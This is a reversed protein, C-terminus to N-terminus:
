GSLKQARTQGRNPYGFGPFAALQGMAPETTKGPTGPDMPIDSRQWHRGGTIAIRSTIRKLQITTVVRMATNYSHHHIDAIDDPIALVAIITTIRTSVAASEVQEPRQRSERM